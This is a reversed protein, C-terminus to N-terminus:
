MSLPIKESAVGGRAGGGGGGLEHKGRDRAPKPLPKSMKELPPPIAYNIKARQRLAYKRGDGEEPERDVEGDADADGDANLDEEPDPDVDSL